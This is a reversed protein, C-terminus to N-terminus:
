SDLELIVKEKGKRSPSAALSLNPSSAMATISSFSSLSFGNLTPSGPLSANTRSPSTTTSHSEGSAAETLLFEVWLRSFSTGKGPSDSSSTRRWFSGSPSLVPPQSRQLGAKEREIDSWSLISALLSLMEFRKADARPTTLFSLVVNTVLRRDVNTDSSNKRLRRLAEMLHENIIVAERRLKNVLVTKEKVEKELEHTRSTNTQLEELGMEATTARHKYEALSQTVQVLQSEYDKVAQRLEHEKATQFDQLVSQLNDGREKELGLEAVGRAHAEELSARADESYAKEQLATREWEDREMRTRELETQTERLERELLLSEQASEQFARNRLRDLETAARASEDSTAILEEKLTEVTATLDDNQATLQQVLQERRDLKAADQKLKNGLTTRMTTLKALLNRYQTGLADKEERTRQLERQLREIPDLNEETETLGNGNLHVPSATNSRESDLSSRTDGLSLGNILKTPSLPSSSSERNNSM